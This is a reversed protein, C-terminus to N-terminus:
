VCFDEYGQCHKRPNEEAWPVAVPLRPIVTYVIQGHSHSPCPIVDHEREPCVVSSASSVTPCLLKMEAVTCVPNQSQLAFYKAWGTMFTISGEKDSDHHQLEQFTSTSNNALPRMQENQRREEPQASAINMQSPLEREGVTGEDNCLSAPQNCLTRGVNYYIDGYCIWPGQCGQVSVFEVLGSQM